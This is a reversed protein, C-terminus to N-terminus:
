DPSFCTYYNDYNDNTLQVLGSGDSNMLCIQYNGNRYSQFVIKTGDPSFSPYQNGYNDNTLQVLGSGDSNMTCIEPGKCTYTQFVIKNGDNSFSPNSSGFNIARILDIKNTKTDLIYIGMYGGKDSYFIIKNGDPSFCPNYNDYSGNTLQMLGSGDSNILYIQSYYYTIQSNENRVLCFVIKNGDPSLCPSHKDFNDNTLQMLGSGDSNMIYIQPMGRRDSEFAIRIGDPFFCPYDNNYNDNTLQVLGSGDSNMLCIQVYGNRDSLFLIKTEDPSLRPQFNSYNDNTLQVVNSGDSNMLYIIQRSSSFVIKFLVKVTNSRIENNSNDNQVLVAYWEDDLSLYKKPVTINGDLSEVHTNNKFWKITYSGINGKDISIKLDDYLTPKEPTIKIENLSISEKTISSEKGASTNEKKNPILKYSLFAAIAIIILAFVLGFILNIKKHSEKPNVKIKLKYGCKRCFIANDDLKTGCKPCYM